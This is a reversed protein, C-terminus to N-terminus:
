EERYYALLLDVMRGYSRVGDTQHNAKLYADNISTSVERVTSQQFQKWYESNQKLDRVLGESYQQWLQNYADMDVESLKNGAHILALMTGSYRFEISDSHICALYGIFNAEDERMFGFFHALEHCMTSPISYDAVDTNVNTEMTIPCYVGVLDTYSMLHSFFIPKTNATRYNFVGYEENLDRYSSRATKSMQYISPDMLQMAGDEDEKTLQARLLNAEKSLRLCLQYLEEASSDRVTLEGIVAFPYRNYNVNCTCTIWFFVICVTWLCILLYKKWNRRHVIVWVILFVALFPFLVIGLEMLSFPFWQTVSSWLIAYYKYFGRAFLFEAAWPYGRTLRLILFSAVVLCIPVVIQWLKWAKCLKWFKKM